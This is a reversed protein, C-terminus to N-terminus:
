RVVELFVRELTPEMLEMKRPLLREQQLFSLINLEAQELSNTHLIISVADPTEIRFGSGSLFPAALFRAQDDATQFTLLFSNTPHAAKIDQLSGSELIKGDHLIAIRDCISEVDSLIHTSFLVTTKVRVKELISLIERRGIPDLASTPEDCILLRPSHLLAQAIGLRQKMGRSFGGIRRNEGALGVLQLLEDSRAQVESKPMGSIEGCLRLYEKPRLYPYFAPVDPLFGILRNSPTRGFGVTEGFVSISGADAKILGLILKMTTTKGAGNAGLFGFVSGEPVALDIGNLVPRDAFQKSIGNLELANM